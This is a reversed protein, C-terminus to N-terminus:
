FINFIPEVTSNICKFIIKSCHKWNDAFYATDLCIRLFANSWFQEVNKWFISRVVRSKKLFFLMAEFNSLMKVFKTKMYKQLQCKQFFFNIIYPSSTTVVIYHFIAIPEITSCCHAINQEVSPLSTTCAIFDLTDVGRLPAFWPLLRKKNCRGILAWWIVVFWTVISSPAIFWTFM